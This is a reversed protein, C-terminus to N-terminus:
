ACGYVDSWVHQNLVYRNFVYGNLAYRNLVRGLEIGVVRISEVPIREM